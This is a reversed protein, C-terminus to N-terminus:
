LVDRPSSVESPGRNLGHTYFITINVDQHGLLVQLLASMRVASKCTRQLPIGSPTLYPLNQFGLRLCLVVCLRRSGAPARPTTRALAHHLVTRRDKGGKGDRVDQDSGM